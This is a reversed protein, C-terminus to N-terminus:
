IKGMKFLPRQMVDYPAKSLIGQIAKWENSLKMCNKIKGQCDHTHIEVGPDLISVNVFIADEQQQKLPMLKPIFIEALWLLLCFFTILLLLILGIFNNLQECAFIISVM